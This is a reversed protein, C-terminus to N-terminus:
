PRLIYEFWLYQGSITDIKVSKLFGKKWDQESWGAPPTLFSNKWTEESVGATRPPIEPHERAIDIRLLRGHSKEDVLRKVEADPMDWGITDRAMIEDLPLFAILDPHNMLHIGQGEEKYTANHSGHHGVKYVVTRKLLDAVDADKNKWTRWSETQADGPFLLVKGSEVLEIALVLSTNNVSNDISLALAEAFNLWDTDIRRWDPAEHSGEGFGYHRALFALENSAEDTGSDRDFRSQSVHSSQGGPQMTKARVALENLPMGRSRDFPLSLRFLEALDSASLDGVQGKGPEPDELNLVAALFSDAQNLALGQGPVTQGAQSRRAQFIERSPGLVYIRVGLSTLNIVDDPELFVTRQFNHLDAWLPSSSCNEMSSPGFDLVGQIAKAQLSPMRLVAANAALCIKKAKDSRRQADPDGRDSTWPLWLEDIQIQNLEDAALRFGSQHDAHEHTAVVTHIHGRTYTLIDKAIQKLHGEAGRTAQYVGFDILLHYPTPSTPNFTLLFCDGFGVRYMRIGVSRLKKKPRAGAKLSKRAATQPTIEM